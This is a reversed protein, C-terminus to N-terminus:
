KMITAKVEVSVKRDSVPDASQAVILPKGNDLIVSLADQLNIQYEPGSSRPELMAHNLTINLRIKGTDLIRPTADILLPQARGPTEAVSRIRGERGDAVTMKVAKAVPPANPRDETITVEVLVNVPQGPPEPMQIVPGPQGPAPPPQPPTPPQPQRPQQQGPQPTQASAQDSMLPIWWLFLLVLIPAITRIKM